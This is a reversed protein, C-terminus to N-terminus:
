EHSKGSAEVLAQQARLQEDVTGRQALADAVERFAAQIAKEYKAVSIDRDLKAVDLNARRTGADFIPLNIHPAFNWASSGGEFLGSLKGSASGSSATLTISPFFAARAAGINTNAAKLVREAELVDPRRQLVDSPLGAPIDTLMTIDAIAARPLSDAPVASGVVLALANEDQAVQSTYFAVDARAAEVSSQAQYVDLGSSAGASLRRQSLEYSVQQSKLTEKALALREQDAALTLYTVSVEAVLSIQQSRRAEETGLYQELAQEKLSRVRGFLDLEYSAFGVGVSYQRSISPNGTGTLSAPTRAASEAATASVTPFMDARAIGYQARAKEINLTSIRLDRNNALALAILKQLHPDTFFDRWKIDSAAAVAAAGPAAVANKYAAGAPWTQSVPAAPQKYEPMLSCGTLLSLLILPACSTYITKKM